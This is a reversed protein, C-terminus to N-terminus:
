MHFVKQGKKNPKYYQLQFQELLVDMTSTKTKSDM